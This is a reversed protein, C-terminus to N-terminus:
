NFLIKWRIFLADQDKCGSVPLESVDVNYILKSLEWFKYEWIDEIKLKVKEMLLDISFEITFISHEM